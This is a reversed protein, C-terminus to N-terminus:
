ELYGLARLQTMIEREEEDSYASKSKETPTVNKEADGDEGIIVPHAKLYAPRIAQTVVQGEFQEPIGLGFSYLLTPPVDLISCGNLVEGRRFMPGSAILVGEPRHTGGISPRRFVIPEEKVISVFSHDSLTLLLDPAKEMTPGPFAEERTCIETIIQEGTAPDRFELLERMLRERIALKEGTSLRNEGPGGPARIYVGNSAPTGVYACTKTWDVSAFSWEHSFRLVDEDQEKKWTLYGLKELLMNLHFVYRTPGFGHDSTIFVNADEGALNVIDQIYGDVNRFYEVTHDRMRREWDLWPSPMCSPDLLRWCLHQLKDV